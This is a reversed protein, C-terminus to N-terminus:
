QNADINGGDVILYNEFGEGGKVIDNFRELAIALKNDDLKRAADEYSPRTNELMRDVLRVLADERTLRVTHKVSM